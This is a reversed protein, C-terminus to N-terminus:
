LGLVDESDTEDPHDDSQSGNCKKEFQKLKVKLQDLQDGMAKRTDKGSAPAVLLALTAGLLAGVFFSITLGSLCSENKDSM